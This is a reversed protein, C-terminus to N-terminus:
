RGPTPTERFPPYTGVYCRLYARCNEIYHGPLPKGAAISDKIHDSGPGWYWTFFDITSMSALKDDITLSLTARDQRQEEIGKFDLERLMRAIAKSATKDDMAGTSRTALVTGDDALFRVYVM